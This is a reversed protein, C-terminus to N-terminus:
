YEGGSSQAPERYDLNISVGGVFDDVPRGFGCNAAEAWADDRMDKFQRYAQSKKVGTLPADVSFDVLTLSIAPLALDFTTARVLAMFCLLYAADVETDTIGTSLDLADIYYRYAADLAPGYGGTTDGTTRGATTMVIDMTSNLYALAETRDM